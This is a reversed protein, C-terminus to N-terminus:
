NNVIKMDLNIYLYIFWNYKYIDDFNYIKAFLEYILNDFGDMKNM